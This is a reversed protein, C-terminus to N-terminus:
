PVIACDHPYDVVEGVVWAEQQVAALATLAAATASAPVIAVMGLGLHFTRDCTTQDVGCDRLLQLLPPARWASRVLVAGLGKPLIRPVNRLLGGGTIHALGHLPVAARLAAVAATYLPTPQLLEDGLDAFGACLAPGRLDRGAHQLAHRVLAFGNSHLGQAALGLLQDGQRVRSGDLLDCREAVGVCSAALDYDGVALLGPLEATEGGSLVVGAAVCARAVSDVLRKALQPDLRGMALYDQVALPRAGSCLVDHVCMAVADQGVTDPRGLDIALRLKTGVGDIATVVV